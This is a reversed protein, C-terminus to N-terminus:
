VLDLARKIAQLILLLIVLAMKTIKYVRRYRKCSNLNKFIDSM